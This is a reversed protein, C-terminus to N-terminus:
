EGPAPTMVRDMLRQALRSAEQRSALDSLDDMLECRWLWLPSALREAQFAYRGSPLTFLQREGQAPAVVEADVPVLVLSLSLPTVLAGVLHEDGGEFSWRQFCLADVGLRPNTHPAEKLHRGQQHQWASALDRLREYQEPSLAQM